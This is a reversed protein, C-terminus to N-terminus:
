FEIMRAKHIKNGVVHTPVAKCAFGPMLWFFLCVVLYYEGRKKTRGTLHNEYVCPVTEFLSRTKHNRESLDYM